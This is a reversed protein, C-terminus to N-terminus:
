AAARGHSCEEMADLNAKVERATDQPTRPDGEMEFAKLMINLLYGQKSAIEPETEQRSVQRVLKGLYKRVDRPTNLQPGRTAM